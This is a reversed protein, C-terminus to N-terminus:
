QYPSDNPPAYPDPFCYRHHPNPASGCRKGEYAAKLDIQPINTGYAKNITSIFEHAVLAYGTNSPHIGDFSSIGWLFGLTCCLGPNISSALAFYPDSPDGSALGHFIAHVDVLPVHSAAAADDIGKNITNNLAQLKGAFAPTIYRMGQGSGAVAKCHPAPVACDLNPLQYTYGFYSIVEAAGPLMIYGCPRSTSAPTCGGPTALGYKKALIAIKSYKLGGLSMFCNAYTHIRCEPSHSPIFSVREFLGTELIDPLNAVVVKAGAHQLTAITARLDSEVQGATRDGGVFRGGSGMYKLWDNAGLWVTALTPHLSAAANVETLHGGLKTFNLLVPWFTGSEESVVQSLLGPIGPLEKCTNTQPAHLVNAEHLTLGPVGLDRITTSSSNVRVRPATSLKFGALNFGNHDTCPDDAKLVQFPPFIGNGTPTVQNDLGPGKILPLPSVSPDYMREISKPVDGSAQEVLDAWFGNEQNPPIQEGVYNPNPVGTAGLFGNSQYGATLSDGIGVIRSLITNTAPVGTHSPLLSSSPGSIGGGCAALAVLAIAALFQRLQPAQM